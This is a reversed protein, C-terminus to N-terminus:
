PHLGNIGALHIFHIDSFRQTVPEGLYRSTNYAGDSDAEMHLHAGDSCSTSGGSMWPHVYGVLAGGATTNNLRYDELAPPWLPVTASPNNWRFTGGNVISGYTSALHLYSEHNWNVYAGSTNYYSIEVRVRYGSYPGDSAACGTSVTSATIFGGAINNPLYDVQAYVPTWAPAGIDFPYPNTFGHPNAPCPNAWIPDPPYCRGATVTGTSGALMAIRGHSAEASQTPGNIWFAFLTAAALILWAAATLVRQRRPVSGELLDRYHRIM